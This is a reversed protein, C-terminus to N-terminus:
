VSEDYPKGHRSRRTNRYNNHGRDKGEQLKRIEELIVNLDEKTAYKSLDMDAPVNQAPTKPTVEDYKFERFTIEIGNNRKIFFMKSDEDLLFVEYGAAIPYNIAATRGGGNLNVFFTQQIHGQQINQLNTQNNPSIM